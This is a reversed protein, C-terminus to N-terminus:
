KQNTDHHKIISASKLVSKMTRGVRKRNKLMKAIDKRSFKRKPFTGKAKSKANSQVTAIQNLAKQQAITIFEM